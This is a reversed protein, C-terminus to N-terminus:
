IKEKGKKGVNYVNIGSSKLKQAILLGFDKELLKDSPKLEIKSVGKKLDRLAPEHTDIYLLKNMKEHYLYFYVTMVYEDLNMLLDDLTMHNSVSYDDRYYQNKRINDTLFYVGKGKLLNKVIEMNNYYNQLIIGNHELDGDYHCYGLKVRNNKNIYGIMSRTAM